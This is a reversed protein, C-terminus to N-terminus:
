SRNELLTNKRRGDDPFSSAAYTNALFVYAAGERGDLRMVAEFAVRGIRVNRWKQCAALLALWITKDAEVPMSEITELADDLRNARGLLDVMCTYHDLGPSIGFKKMLEFFERAKDVLGAHSFATLILLFTVGSPRIREEVMKEFLELVRATNGQKAFGAMVTNWAVSNRTEMAQFVEMADVMSGCKGYFDILCSALQQKHEELPDGGRIEAHIEKGTKLAGLIGCAKLAAMFTVGDPVFSGNELMRRFLELALEAEGAQAYGSIMANWSVLDRNEMKEFVRRASSFSGCKAYMDVLTNAVLIQCECGLESIQTHIAVGRELGLAKDKAPFNACAKLAAIFTAGDPRLGDKVQMLDFLELARESSSNQAFGLILANWSVLDRRRMRWFVRSADEMSGCKCYMDVLSNQVFLESDCGMREAEAHLSFGKEMSELKIVKGQIVQGQEKASLEACAKLAAVVTRSNPQCQDLRTFFQFLELAIEGDGNQAYGLILATWSVVSWRKELRNFVRQADDMSGCKAYFDVLTNAVFVDMEYGGNALESHLAMGRELSKLKFLRGGKMSSSSALRQGAEKAACDCCATLASVFSRANPTFKEVEQMSRFFELALDGRGCLACAMVMANWLVLDRCQARWFAREADQISGCKAYFDVLTSAVFIEADYGSRALRSHLAMGMELSKMKPEERTAMNTCAKLTAVYTRANPKCGSSDMRLLLELAVEGRGIQAYGMMLSTWSVVSRHKMREFVRRADDLSGSKVFTDILTNAVYIDSEFGLKVAVAEVSRAIELCDVMTSEGHKKSSSRRSDREHDKEKDACNACCKLVAVLTRPNPVFGLDQMASFVQLGVEGKGAHAYGAILSNWSVSDLAGAALMGQFFFRRADEIGGCRAYTSVITNAVFVNLANGQHAATAHIKRASQLDSAGGCAKLSAITDPISLM